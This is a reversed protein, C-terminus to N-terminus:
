TGSLKFKNKQKDAIMWGGLDVPQNGTDLLTVTEREPSHTDNVLAAVIRVWGDPNQETPVPEPTPQPSPPDGPPGGPQLPRRNGTHDDTHIDASFIATSSKM